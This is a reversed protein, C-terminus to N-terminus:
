KQLKSSVSRLVQVTKAKVDSGLVSVYDFRNRLQAVLEKAPARRSNLFESFGM